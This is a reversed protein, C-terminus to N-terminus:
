PIGSSLVLRVTQRLVPRLDDCTQMRCCTTSMYDDCKRIDCSKPVEPMARANSLAESYDQNDTFVIEVGIQLKIDQPARLSIFRCKSGAAFVDPSPAKKTTPWANPEHHVYLVKCGGQLTVMALM